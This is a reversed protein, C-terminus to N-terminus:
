RWGGGLVRYMDTVTTMQQVKAETSEMKAELAERQSTLVELYDARANKQLEGAIYVAQQLLSAQKEKLEYYSQLNLIKSSLNSVSLYAELITKQYEYLAQVQRADASKFRAQIATKNILPASISGLLGFAM